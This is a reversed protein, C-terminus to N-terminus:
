GQGKWVLFFGLRCKLEEYKKRSDKGRGKKERGRGIEKTDREKEKRM